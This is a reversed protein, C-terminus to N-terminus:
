PARGSVTSTELQKVLIRRVEAITTPNSQTSHESHHVVLESDIGNIHASEYRVVGDTGESLPGDNEVPIISNAHVGPALPVTALAKIFPSNPSMGYISGLRSHSPDVLVNGANGTAFEGAARAISAPLTVLRGLLQSISFAAVFSGHQPTAIFIVRRVEPL